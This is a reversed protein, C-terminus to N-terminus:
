VEEYDFPPIYSEQQTGGEQIFANAVGLSLAHRILKEYERKTVKRSLEPHGPIERLPTYQNMLSLIVQDGFREYVETVVAEANKVHGPLLLHRVIVGERMMGREDTLVCPKQRVMEKLADLAVEPYDPAASLESSLTEDMYKFDTLYIDIYPEMERLVRVNEYGSTNYVVPLSFGEAKAMKLAERIKLAYHTPTVLNLNNAGQDQLSLFIESLRKVSVPKGIKLSAIDRNQCYACRLSCGSFFVTGSGETGSICPEEWYHLAARALFVEEGAAGCFGSEGHARDAACKRPCLM